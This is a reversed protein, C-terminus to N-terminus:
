NEEEERRAKEEEVLKEAEEKAATDSAIERLPGSRKGSNLLDFWDLLNPNKILARRYERYSISGNNSTDIQNFIEYLEQRSLRVHSNILSSWHSIM